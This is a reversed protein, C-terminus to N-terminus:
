KTIVKRQWKNSFYYITNISLQVIVCITIAIGLAVLGEMNTYNKLFLLSVIEVGMTIFTQIMSFKTHGTGIIFGQLLQRFPILLLSFRLVSIYLMSMTIVNESSVFIRCFQKPFIYVIIITILIPAISLKLGQKMINKTEKIMNNGIFQGVTVVMMTKFAGCIIHLIEELKNVIGYGASGIVGAENSTNVELFFVMAIAWEQMIVPIGIKLLQFIYEKRFKIYKFDVKLLQSKRKAYTIALVLGIFMSILTAIAAGKVGLGLKILIPDLLLNLGSSLAVFIMPTKTNGIARFEEMIIIFIFNFIYGIIYFNLYEITIGLIEEPTNILKLWFKISIKMLIASIIAVIIGILYSAGVISKTKEEDKAGYHQAVSVSVATAIGATISTLILTIPYSNTVASVGNEGILNGIWISDVINYISNLLNTLILPILLITMNKLLNGKTLDKGEM